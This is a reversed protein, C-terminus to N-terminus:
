YIGVRGDGKQDLLKRPINALVEDKVTKILSRKVQNRHACLSVERVPVPDTFPRLKKQDNQNLFITALEPLITIGQQYDVLKKLTEISGAHYEFRTPNQRKLDCLKFMQTHYCHGEELIWLDDTNIDESAVYKKDHMASTYVWFPEYFLVEESISKENIPTVLIGADIKAQKLNEIIRETTMESIKLKVDPYKRIFSNIFLPILYPALTPIIAVELEGKLEGDQKEKMYLMAKTQAIVSRAYELIKEGDATPVIPKKSRDFIIVGLEEELKQVMMSLTPQSVNCSTAAKKFHRENDLAIIYELQQINM